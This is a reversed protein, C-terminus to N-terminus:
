IKLLNDIALRFQPTVIDEKVVAGLYLGGAIWNVVPILGCLIGSVRPHCKMSELNIYVEPHKQQMLFDLHSYIEEEKEFEVKELALGFCVEYFLIGIIYWM